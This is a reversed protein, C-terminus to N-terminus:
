EATNEIIVASSTNSNVVGEPSIELNIMEEPPDEDGLADRKIQVAQRNDSAVPANLALDYAARAGQRDNKAMRLDGLLENYMADFESPYKEKLLSDAADLEGTTLYLLALRLKAIAIIESQKSSRMAWKLHSKATDFDDLLVAAKAGALSALAAYPTGAYDNQLEVVSANITDLKNEDLDVILGTYIASALEAQKNRHKEWAQWGFLAGLGLVVGLVVAPGNDRWWKKIAELQEQESGYVEM